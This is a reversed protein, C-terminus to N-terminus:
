LINALLLNFLHSNSGRNNYRFAFENVYAQLHRPSVFHYTGNVSRKLQSWFGELNNTHADGNVYEGKGHDVTTHSYGM